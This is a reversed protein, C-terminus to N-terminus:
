PPGEADEAPPEESEEELARTLPSMAKRLLDRMKEIDPTVGTFLEFQRAAQRVFMEVGTIVHCGRGALARIFAPLVATLTKGEGTQMEAIHGELLALGGMLQVAFHEMGLTRRSAERVLAYAEEALALLPVGTKARWRIERGLRM